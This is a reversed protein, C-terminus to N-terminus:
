RFFWWGVVFGALFFILAKVCEDVLVTARRPTVVQLPVLVSRPVPEIRRGKPTVRQVPRFWPRPHDPANM